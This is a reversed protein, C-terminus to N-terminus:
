NRKFWFVTGVILTILCFAVLIGIVFIFTFKLKSCSDKGNSGTEKTTYFTPCKLCAENGEAETYFGKLCICSMGDESNKCDSGKMEFGYDCECKKRDDSSLANEPCRECPENGIFNKFYREECKPCRADNKEYGELCIFIKRNQSSISNPPIPMCDNYGVYDKYTYEDCFWCDLGDVQFGKPCECLKNAIADNESRSYCSHCEKNYYYTRWNCSCYYDAWRPPRDYPNCIFIGIEMFSRDESYITYNGPDDLLLDFKDELRYLDNYNHYVCYIEDDNFLVVSTLHCDCYDLRHRSNGRRFTEFGNYCDQFEETTVNWFSYDDCNTDFCESPNIESSMEGVDCISCEFTDNENSEIKKFEEKCENCTVNSIPNNRKNDRCYSCKTNESEGSLIYTGNPCNWFRDTFAKDKEYRRIEPIPDIILDDDYEESQSD